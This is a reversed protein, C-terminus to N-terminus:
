IMTSKGYEKMKSEIPMVLEVQGVQRVQEVQQAQQLSDAEKKAKRMQETITLEGDKVDSGYKKAIELVRSLEVTSALAM